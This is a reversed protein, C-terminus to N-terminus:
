QFIKGNNYIIHTSGVNLFKFAIARLFNNGLVKNDSESFRITLWVVKRIKAYKIIDKLIM